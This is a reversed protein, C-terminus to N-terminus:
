GNPGSRCNFGVVDAGAALLRRFAEDLPIGDHTSGTGETAFQCIVPLSSIKRILKLAILLEELDYFSELLLGDM